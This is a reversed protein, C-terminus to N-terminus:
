FIVKLHFKSVCSKTWSDTQMFIPTVAWESLHIAQNGVNKNGDGSRKTLKRHVNFLYNIDIVSSLPIILCSFGYVCNSSVIYVNFRNFEGTFHRENNSSIQHLKDIRYYIYITLM